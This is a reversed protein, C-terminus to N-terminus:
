PHFTRQLEGLVNQESLSVRNGFGMFGGAAEAVARAKELLSTEIARRTTLDLPAVVARMYEGWATAMAPPPATKLWTELMLHAPTGAAIGQTEAGRLVAVREQDSVSGDAWAVMILPVLRLAALTDAGIELDVLRELVKEDQIGSAEALMAKRGESLDSERLKQRLRENEAAFFAEELAARRGRLIHDSM